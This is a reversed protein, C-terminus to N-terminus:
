GSLTVLSTMFVPKVKMLKLLLPVAQLPLLLQSQLKEQLPIVVVRADKPVFSSFGVQQFLEVEDLVEDAFRHVAANSGGRAM